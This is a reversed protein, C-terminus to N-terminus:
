KATFTYTTKGITFGIVLGDPNMQWASKGSTYSRNQPNKPDIMLGNKKDGYRVVVLGGAAIDVYVGSADFTVSAVNPDKRMVTTAGMRFKENPTDSVPFLRGGQLGQYPLDGPKKSFGRSMSTLRYNGAADVNMLGLSLNDRRYGSPTNHGLIITGAYNMVGKKGETTTFNLKLNNRGDKQFDYATIIWPLKGSTAGAKGRVELMYTDDTNQVVPGDTNQVVTLDGAYIPMSIYQLLDVEAYSNNLSVTWIGVSLVGLVVLGIVIGLINRKHKHINM